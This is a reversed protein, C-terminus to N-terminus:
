TFVICMNIEQITEQIRISYLVYYLFMVEVIWTFM